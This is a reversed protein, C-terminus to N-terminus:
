GFGKNPVRTGQCRARSDHAERERDYLVLAHLYFALFARALDKNQLGALFSEKEDM